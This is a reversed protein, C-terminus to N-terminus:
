LVNLKASGTRDGGTPTFLNNSSGIAIMVAECWGNAGTSVFAAREGLLKIGCFRNYWM